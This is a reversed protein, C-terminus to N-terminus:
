PLRYKRPKGSGPDDRRVGLEFPSILFELPHISSRQFQNVASLMM